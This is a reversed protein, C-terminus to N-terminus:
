TRVAFQLVEDRSPAAPQAGLRTVSIASAQVAFRCAQELSMGESLGVALGANFVDGAATTDIAAVPIAPIAIARDKEVLVCGQDGLKM